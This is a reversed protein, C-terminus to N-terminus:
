RGEAREELLSEVISTGSGIKVPPEDLIEDLMDARRPALIGARLLRERRGDASKYSLGIAEIRAIPRGREEVIVDEGSKVLDLLASLRNKAETISVRKM